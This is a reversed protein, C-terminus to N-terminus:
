HFTVAAQEDYSPQGNITGTKVQKISTVTMTHGAVTATNNPTLTATQSAGTKQDTVTVNVETSTLSNVKFTVGNIGNTSNAYLYLTVSGVGSPTTAAAPGMQVKCYPDPYQININGAKEDQLRKVLETTPITCTTISSISAQLSQNMQALQTQVQKLASGDQIATKVKQIDADTVGPFSKLGSLIQNQYTPDSFFKQDVVASASEVKSVYICNAGSPGKIQRDTVSNQLIGLALFGLSNSETITSTIPACSSAATILCDLDNCGAPAVPSATTTAVAATTTSAVPSPTTGNASNQRPLVVYHVYAIGGAVALALVILLIAIGAFGNKSM